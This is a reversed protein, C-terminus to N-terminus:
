AARRAAGGVAIQPELTTMEAVMLLANTAAEGLGLPAAAALVDRELRVFFADTLPAYPNQAHSAAIAAGLTGLTKRSLGHLDEHERFMAALEGAQDAAPAHRHALLSSRCATCRLNTGLRYPCVACTVGPRTAAFEWAGSGPTYMPPRSPVVSGRGQAEALQRGILELIEQLMLRRQRDLVLDWTIETRAEFRVRAIQEIVAIDPFRLIQGICEHYRGCVWEPAASSTPHIGFFGGPLRRATVTGLSESTILRETLTQAVPEASAAPKCAGGAKCSTCGCAHDAAAHATVPWTNWEGSIPVGLDAALQRLHASVDHGARQGQCRFLDGAQGPLALGQAPACRVLGAPALIQYAGLMPEVVHRRAARQLLATDVYWDTGIRYLHGSAM